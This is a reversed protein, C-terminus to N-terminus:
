KTNKKNSFNESSVGEREKEGETGKGGRRLRLVLVSERQGGLPGEGGDVGKAVGKMRVSCGCELRGGHWAGDLGHGPFLAGEVILSVGGERGRSDTAGGERRM